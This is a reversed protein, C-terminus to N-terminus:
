PRPSRGSPCVPNRCVQSRASPPWSALVLCLTLPLHRRSFPVYPGLPASPSTRHSLFGELFCPQLRPATLSAPIQPCGSPTRHLVSQQLASLASLTLSGPPTGGTMWALSTAAQVLCHPHQLHLPPTTSGPCSQTEGPGPSSTSICPTDLSPGPLFGSGPDEFYLHEQLQLM